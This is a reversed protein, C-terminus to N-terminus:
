SGVFAERARHHIATGAIYLLTKIATGGQVFSMRSMVEPLLVLLFSLATNWRPLTRSPLISGNSPVLYVVRRPSSKAPAPVHQEHFRGPVGCRSPTEFSHFGVLRKGIWVLRSPFVWWANCNSTLLYICLVQICHVTSGCRILRTSSCTPESRARPMNVSSSSAEYAWDGFITPYHAAKPKCKPM